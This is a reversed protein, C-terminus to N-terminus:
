TQTPEPPRRQGPCAKGVGIQVQRRQGHAAVILPACIPHRVYYGGAYALWKAGSPGPCGNVVITTGRHDENANGWGISLANRLRDPVILRLRAGPRIVLGSKAFLRAGPDHLDSKATQLARRTPPSAPLAVVGLVSRMGREPPETGVSERCPLGRVGAVFATGVDPRPAGGGCASLALAGAAVGALPLRM